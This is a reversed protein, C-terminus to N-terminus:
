ALRCGICNGCMRGAHAPTIRELSSTTNGKNLEERMRPPSGVKSVISDAIAKNKGCARPHDRLFVALILRALFEERM